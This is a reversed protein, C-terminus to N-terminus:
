LDLLPFEPTPLAKLRRNEFASLYFRRAEYEIEHDTDYTQTKTCSSLRYYKPNLIDKPVDLYLFWEVIHGGKRWSVDKELSQTSDIFNSVNLRVCSFSKFSKM